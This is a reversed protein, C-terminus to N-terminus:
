ILRWCYRASLKIANMMRRRTREIGVKIPTMIM